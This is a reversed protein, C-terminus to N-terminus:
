PQGLAWENMRGHLVGRHLEVEGLTQLNQDHEHRQDVVVRVHQDPAVDVHEHQGPAVRVHEHLVPAVEVHEEQGPATDVLEHQGPADDVHEHQGPAVGVHRLGGGCHLLTPLCWCAAHARMLEPADLAAAAVAAGAAALQRAAAHPLGTTATVVAAGAVAAAPCAASASHVASLFGVVCDQAEANQAGAGVVAAAVAAAVSMGVTLGGLPVEHNPLQWLPKWSAGFEQHALSALYSAVVLHPQSCEAWEATSQHPYGGCQM